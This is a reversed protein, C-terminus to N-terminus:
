VNYRIVNKGISKGSEQLKHVERFVETNLGQFTKNITSQLTGDEFLICLEELIKHQAVMDNTKYLSRTFMFEWHFAASKSKLKDLDLPEKNEVISCIQGQPAIITAMNDWHSDTDAFNLIYAVTDIKAKKLENQLDYHNVVLDAGM